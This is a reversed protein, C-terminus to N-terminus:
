SMEKRPGSARAAYWVLDTLPLIPIHPAVLALGDAIQGLCGPNTTVVADCGTAALAEAKRRGMVASMEPHQVGYVGASGCCVEAEAPELVVVGPIRALLRRPAEVVGLGHRAHCPDHVAVRLPVPGLDVPALRELLSVADIVMDSLDGPQSKLEQGCGAAAVVVHDCHGLHPTFARRNRRRLRSTRGRSELHSALAGCCDQGEPVTLECGLRRLLDQLRRSTHPMLSADACGKFVAVRLGAAPARHHSSVAPRPGGGDLTEFQAILADDSGPDVPLTGLLRALRRGAGPTRELRGRWGAGLLRVAAGRVLSGVVRLTRLVARRDLLRVPPRRNPDADAALRRVYALLDASVGSPCTATCALCGLCQDFTERVSPESADTRGDLVEGLLLLRGRPSQAENGTALYTACNPLCLGCEVCSQRLDDLQTRDLSGSM